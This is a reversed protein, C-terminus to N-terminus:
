PGFSAVAMVDGGGAVGVSATATVVLAAQSAAYVKWAASGSVEEGVDVAEDTVETVTASWSTTSVGSADSSDVLVVAIVVGGGPVFLTVTNAGDNVIDTGTAKATSSAGILRFVAIDCGIMGATWTVVIDGTIGTPVSAIWIAATPSNTSITAAVVQTAEVGGVTLSSITRGNGSGYAAVTVVIKRNSAAAGLSITSYTYSSADASSSASTVFSAAVPRCFGQYLIAPNM